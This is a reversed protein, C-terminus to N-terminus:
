GKGIGKRVQKMPSTIYTPVEKYMDNGRNRQTTGGKKALM